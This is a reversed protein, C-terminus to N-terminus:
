SVLRSQRSGWIQELRQHRNYSFMKYRNPNKKYYKQHYDEAPYFPSAPLLETVISQNLFDEIQSKSTQAKEKQEEDQYFIASRYSTGKDCFQGKEDFPDINHWFVDLLQEYTIHHPDFIVKVAEYHGTQGTSVQEYTPNELYGGTYGSITVRVGPIPDFTSEMCWFCGGAFTATNNIILTM